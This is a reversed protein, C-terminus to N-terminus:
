RKGRNINDIFLKPPVDIGKINCRTRPSLSASRVEAAAAAMLVLLLLLVMAVEVEVKVVVVEVEVEVEELVEVVVVVEVEVEEEEVEVEVELTWSLLSAVAAVCPFPTFHKKFLVTKKACIVVSFRSLLEMLELHPLPRSSEAFGFANM